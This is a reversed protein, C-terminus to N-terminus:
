EFIITYVCDIVLAPMACVCPVNSVHSPPAQLVRVCRPPQREPTHPRPGSAPYRFFPPNPGKKRPAPHQHPSKSEREPPTGRCRVPWWM